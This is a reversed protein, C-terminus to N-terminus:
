WGRRLWANQSTDAIKHKCIIQVHRASLIPNSLCSWLNPGANLNMTEAAGVGALLVFGLSVRSALRNGPVPHTARLNWIGSLLQPFACARHEQAATTLRCPRTHGIADLMGSFKREAGDSICFHHDGLQM